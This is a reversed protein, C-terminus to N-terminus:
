SIITPKATLWSIISFFIQIVQYLLSVIIFKIYIYFNVLQLFLFFSFFFVNLMLCQGSNKLIENFSSVFM